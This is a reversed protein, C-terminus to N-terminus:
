AIDSGEDENTTDPTEQGRGGRRKQQSSEDKVPREIGLETRLEQLEVKIVEMAALIEEDTMNAWDYTTNFEDVKATIAAVQDETLYELAKEAPFELGNVKLNEILRTFIQDKVIERSRKNIRENVKEAPSELGLEAYLAACEDKVILLAETVEEDTMNTWDYTANVQDIFTLIATSQEETLTALYKESPYPFGTEQVTEKVNKKFRNQVNERVQQYRESVTEQVTDNQYAVASGGSFLMAGILFLKM